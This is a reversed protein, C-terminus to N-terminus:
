FCSAAFELRNDIAQRIKAFLSCAPRTGNAKVSAVTSSTHLIRNIDRGVEDGRSTNGGVNSREDASTMAGM